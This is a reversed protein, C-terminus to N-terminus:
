AAGVAPVAVTHAAKDADDAIAEDICRDLLAARLMYPQGDSTLRICREDNDGHRLWLYREADQEATQARVRWYDANGAYRKAENGWYDAPTAFMSMTLESM